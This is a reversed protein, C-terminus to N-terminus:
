QFDAYEIITFPADMPGSVHDAETIPPIGPATPLDFSEAVCSATGPLTASVTPVLTPPEADTPTPAPTKTPSSPPTSTPSASEKDCGTVLGLLIITLLLACKRM